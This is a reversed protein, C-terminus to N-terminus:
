PEENVLLDYSWHDSQKKGKKRWRSGATMSQILSWCLVV